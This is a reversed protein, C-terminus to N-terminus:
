WDYLSLPDRGRRRAPRTLRTARIAAAQIAKRFALKPVGFSGDATHYMGERFDREPERATKKAKPSGDMTHALKVKRPESFADTILPSTGELRLRFRTLEPAPLKITQPSENM